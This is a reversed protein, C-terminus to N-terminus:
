YHIQIIGEFIPILILVVSYKQLFSANKWYYPDWNLLCIFTISIFIHQPISVVLRLSFLFLIFLPFFTNLILYFQIVLFKSPLPPYFIM